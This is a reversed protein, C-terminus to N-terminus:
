IDHEGPICGEKDLTRRVKFNTREEDAMFVLLDSNCDLANVGVELTFVWVEHVQLSINYAARVQNLQGYIWHLFVLGKVPLSSCVKQENGLLEIDPAVVIGVWSSDLNVALVQGRAVGDLDSINLLHQRITHIEVFHVIMLLERRDDLQLAGVDINLALIHNHLLCFLDLVLPLLHLKCHDALLALLRLSCSLSALLLGLLM